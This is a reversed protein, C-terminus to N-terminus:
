SADGPGQGGSSLHVKPRCRAALARFLGRLGVGIVLALVSMPIELGMDIVNQIIPWTSTPPRLGFAVLGHIVTVQPWTGFELWSVGQVAVTVLAGVVGAFGFTFALKRLFVHMSARYCCLRAHIRRVGGDTTTLSQIPLRARSVDHLTM